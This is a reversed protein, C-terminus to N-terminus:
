ARASLVRAHAWRTWVMGWAITWEFGMVIGMVLMAIAIGAVVDYTGHLRLLTLLIICSATMFWAIIGLWRAPGSVQRSWRYVVLATVM